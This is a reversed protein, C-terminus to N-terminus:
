VPLYRAAWSQALPITANRRYEGARDVYVNWLKSEFIGTKELDDPFIIRLGEKTLLPLLMRNTLRTGLKQEWDRIFHMAKDISCGTAQQVSEDAMLVLAQNQVVHLAARLAKGHAAWEQTFYMSAQRISETQQDSFPKEALFFWLKTQDSFEKPIEFIM